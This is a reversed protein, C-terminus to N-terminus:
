TPYSFDKEDRIMANLITLLKRAAATIAVKTPKGRGILNDRFPRLAGAGRSAHMGASYLVRRVTSRGGKIRRRGHWQGSENDMPALGTLAALKHANLQGLEPLEALLTAATVPGVGPATQLRRAKRALPESRKIEAAILTDIAAIEDSLVAIIRQGSAAIQAPIHEAARTREIQRLSVLQRRRVIYERLTATDQPAADQPAPQLLEGYRRLLVADARDSKAKIGLVRALDKPATPTLRVFRAGATRLALALPRDYRGTAEFIVIAQEASACAAFGDLDDMTHRTSGHVPHSIDIWNKSIDVGIYVQSM